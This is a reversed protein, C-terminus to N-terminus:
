IHAFHHRLALPLAGHSILFYCFILMVSRHKGLYLLGPGLEKSELMGEELRLMFCMQWINIQRRRRSACDTVAM